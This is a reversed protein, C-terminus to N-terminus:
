VKVFSVCRESISRQVLSQGKLINQLLRSNRRFTGLNTHLKSRFLCSLTPHQIRNTPQSPGTYIKAYIWAIVLRPKMTSQSDSRWDSIVFQAGLDSIFQVYVKVVDHSVDVKIIKVMKYRCVHCNILHCIIWRNNIICCWSWSWQSCM